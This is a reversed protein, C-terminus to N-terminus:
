RAAQGEDLTRRAFALDAELTELEAPYREGLLRRFRGVLGDFAALDEAGAEGRGFRDRVPNFYQNAGFVLMGPYTTSLDRLLAREDATRGVLEIARELARAPDYAGPDQAYEAATSIPLLGLRHQTAMPNNMYGDAVEALDPDRGTLPGLHMTPAADNCPYNDWIVLRRGGVAARYSEGAPRGIRPTIVADGTWFLGVDPDLVADLAALYARESTRTGDGWYVTPTFVMRAAPDRARLRRLLENVLRAQGDADSGQGIDDLSVNFTRVGLGQMWAYHSWLADLGARDEVAAFREAFLNPNMSFWFELGASQAARVVAEYGRRKADPLPEWWRNCGPTGWRQHEIDALSAYCNMLFTLGLGPLDPITELYQDVTWAWGKIGRERFGSTV